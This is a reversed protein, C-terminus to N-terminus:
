ELALLDTRDVDVPPPRLDVLLPHLLASGGLDVLEKLVRETVTVQDAPRDLANDPVRRGQLPLARERRLWSLFVPQLQTALEILLDDLTRSV